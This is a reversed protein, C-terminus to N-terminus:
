FAPSLDFGSSSEDLQLCVTGVALLAHPLSTIPITNVVAAQLDVSLQTVWWCGKDHSMLPCLSEIKAGMARHQWEGNSSCSECAALVKGSLPKASVFFSICCALLLMIIVVIVIDELFLWYLFKRSKMFYFLYCLSICVPVSKRHSNSRKWYM